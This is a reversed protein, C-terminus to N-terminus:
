VEGLIENEELIHNFKTELFEVFARVQDNQSLEDFTEEDYGHKRIPRFILQRVDWLANKYKAANMCEAYEEAEDPLTFTITAKM